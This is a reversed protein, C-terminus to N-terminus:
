KFAYIRYLIELVTFIMKSAGGRCMQLEPRIGIYPIVTVCAAKIDSIM